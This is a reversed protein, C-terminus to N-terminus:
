LWECEEVNKMERAEKEGLCTIFCEHLIMLLVKIRYKFCDTFFVECQMALEVSISGIKTELTTYSYM